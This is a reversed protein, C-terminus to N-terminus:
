HMNERLNTTMIEKKRETGKRRDESLSPSWGNIRTHNKKREEDRPKGEM